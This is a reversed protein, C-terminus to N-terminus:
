LKRQWISPNFFRARRENCVSKNHEAHKAAREDMQAKVKAEMATPDQVAEDGLVRMLNSIKLKPDPAPLVHAIVPNVLLL